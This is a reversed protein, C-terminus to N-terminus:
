SNHIKSIRIGMSFCLFKRNKFILEPRIHDLITDFREARLVSYLSTDCKPYPTPFGRLDMFGLEGEHVNRIAGFFHKRLTGQQSPHIPFFIEFFYILNKISECVTLPFLGLVYHIFSSHKSIRLRLKM